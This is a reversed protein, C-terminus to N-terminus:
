ISPTLTTTSIVDAALSAATQMTASSTITSLVPLVLATDTTPLSDTTTTTTASIRTTVVPDRQVVLSHICIDSFWRAAMLWLPAGSSVFPQRVPMSFSFPAVGEQAIDVAVSRATLENRWSLDITISDNSVLVTSANRQQLISKDQAECWMGCPRAFTAVDRFGNASVRIALLGGVRVEVGFGSAIM